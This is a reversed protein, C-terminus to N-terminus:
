RGTRLEFDDYWGTVTSETGDSDTMFGLGVIEPPHDNGFLLKWDAAINRRFSHWEGAGANGSNLVVFRSRGSSPHHFTRGPPVVNGWVYNITRPPGLLTKFAVFLRATHDFTAKKDDSGGPPIKDIKWRWSLTSGKPEIGDFKVALGTAASQATGRLVSNTGDKEILYQTEGEFEVKKWHERLGREFDERFVAQGAASSTLIVAGTAVIAIWRMGFLYQTLCAWGVTKGTIRADPL